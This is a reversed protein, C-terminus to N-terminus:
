TGHWHVHYSWIVIFYTCTTNWKNCETMLHLGGSLTECKFLKSHLWVMLLYVYNSFCVLPPLTLSCPSSRYMYYTFHILVQYSRGEFEMNCYPCFPFVTNYAEEFQAYKGARLTLLFPFALEKPSHTVLFLCVLLRGYGCFEFQVRRRVGPFRTKIARFM